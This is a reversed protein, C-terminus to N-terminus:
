VIKLEVSVSKAPANKVQKTVTVFEIPELEAAELM